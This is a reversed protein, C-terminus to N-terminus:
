TKLGEVLDKIKKVQDSWLQVAFSAQHSGQQALDAVYAFKRKELQLIVNLEALIMHTHAIFEM